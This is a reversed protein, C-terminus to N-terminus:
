KAAYHRCLFDLLVHYLIRENCQVNDDYEAEELFARIQRLMEKFRSDFKETGIQRLMEQYTEM